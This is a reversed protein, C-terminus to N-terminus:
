ECKMREDAPVRDRIYSPRTHLLGGQLTEMDKVVGRSMNNGDRYFSKM